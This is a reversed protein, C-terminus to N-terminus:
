ARDIKTHLDPLFPLSVSSSCNHGSVFRKDLRCRVVGEKELEMVELLEEHVPCAPQSPEDQLRQPSTTGTGELLPVFSLPANMEFSKMQFRECHM